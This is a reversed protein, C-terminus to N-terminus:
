QDGGRLQQAIAAAAHVIARRTTTSYDHDVESMSVGISILCEGMEDFIEVEHGAIKVTLRLKVVLRLADGDDALPNWFLRGQNAVTWRPCTGSFKLMGDYGATLASLELLERDTM